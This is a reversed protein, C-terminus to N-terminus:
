CRKLHVLSHEAAIKYWEKRCVNRWKTQWTSDPHQAKESADLVSNFRIVSLYLNQIQHARVMDKVPSFPFIGPSDTITSIENVREGRRQYHRHNLLPWQSPTAAPSHSSTGQWEEPLHKIAHLPVTGRCICYSGTWPSHLQMKLHSNFSVSPFFM